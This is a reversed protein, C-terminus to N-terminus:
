SANEREIPSLYQAGTTIPQMKNVQTFGVANFTIYSNTPWSIEIKWSFGTSGSSYVMEERKIEHIQMLQVAAMCEKYNVSVVLDTVEHFILDAAAVKFSFANESPSLWEVIHDIDLVLQSSDEGEIIRFGHIANDHWNFEEFTNMTPM